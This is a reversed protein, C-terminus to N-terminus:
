ESIFFKLSEGHHSGVDFIIPRTKGEFCKSIISKRTFNNNFTKNRDLFTGVDQM